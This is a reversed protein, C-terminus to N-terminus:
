VKDMNIFKIMSQGHFKPFQASFLAIETLKPSIGLEKRKPLRCRHIITRRFTQQQPVSLALQQANNDSNNPVNKKQEKSEEKKIDGKNEDKAPLNLRIGRNNQPANNQTGVTAPVEAEASAKESGAFLFDAGKSSNQAEAGSAEGGSEIESIQRGAEKTTNDNNDNDDNNVTAATEKRGCDPCCKFRLFSKDAMGKQAFPQTTDPNSASYNGTSNTSSNKSGNNSNKSGGSNGGSNSGNNSNKGDSGDSIGNTRVCLDGMKGVVEPKRWMEYDRVTSFTVKKLLKHKYEIRKKWMQRGLRQRRHRALEKKLLHENELIEPPFARKLAGKMTCIQNKENSIEECKRRKSNRRKSSRTGSSKKELLFSGASQGASKGASNSHSMGARTQVDVVDNDSVDSHVTHVVNTDVCNWGLQEPTCEIQEEWKWGLEEPTCEVQEEWELVGDTLVSGVSGTVSAVSEPTSVQVGGIRSIAV